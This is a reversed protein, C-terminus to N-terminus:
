CPYESLDEPIEISEDLIHLHYLIAKGHSNSMRLAMISYSSLEINFFVTRIM